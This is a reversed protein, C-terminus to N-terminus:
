TGGLCPRLYRMPDLPKGRYRIEFHLHTGTATGRKGARGITEGAGVRDGRRVAAYFLHAYRTTFGSGHDVIVVNGYGRQRGAFSVTGAAAARVPEGPRTKIDVGEHFASGRGGARSRTGFPSTIREEVFERVPPVLIIAPILTSDPTIDIVTRGGEGPRAHARYRPAPTCGVALVALITWL